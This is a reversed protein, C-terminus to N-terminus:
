EHRERLFSKNLHELTDKQVFTHERQKRLASVSLSYYGRRDTKKEAFMQTPFSGAYVEEFGRNRDLKLVLLCDAYREASRLSISTTSTTKIQVTKNGAALVADWGAKSSEELILDYTHKAVAEGISGVLHGDPTFHRKCDEFMEDLGDVVNYLDAILKALRENDM